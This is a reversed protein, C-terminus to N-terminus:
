EGRNKMLDLVVLPLITLACYITLIWASHSDTSSIAENALWFSGIVALLLFLRVALIQSIAKFVSLIEAHSPSNNSPQETRTMM